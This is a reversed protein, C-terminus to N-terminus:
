INKIYRVSKCIRGLGLFIDRTAEPHSSDMRQEFDGAAGGDVGSAARDLPRARGPSAPEAARLTSRLPEPPDGGVARPLLSRGFSGELHALYIAM